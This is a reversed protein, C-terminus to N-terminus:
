FDAQLYPLSGQNKLADQYHDAVSFNQQSDKFASKTAAQYETAVQNLHVSAGIRAPQARYTAPEEAVAGATEDPADGIM